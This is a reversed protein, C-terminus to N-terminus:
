VPVLICSADPSKPLLSQFACPFEHPRPKLGNFRYLSNYFSAESSPLTWSRIVSVCLSGCGRDELSGTM